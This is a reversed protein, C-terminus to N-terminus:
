LWTANGFAYLFGALFFSLLHIPLDAVIVIIALVRNVKHRFLRISLLVCFVLGTIIFMVSVPNLPHSLTLREIMSNPTASKILAIYAIGMIAGVLVSVWTSSVVSITAWLYQQKKSTAPRPSFATFVLWFTLGTLVGFLLFGIGNIFHDDSKSDSAVVATLALVGFVAGIAVGAVVPGIVLWKKVGSLNGLCYALKANM